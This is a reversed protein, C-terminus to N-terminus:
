EPLQSLYSRLDDACGKLEDSWLNIAEVQKAEDEPSLLEAVSVIKYALLVGRKLRILAFGNVPSQNTAPTNVPAGRRSRPSSARGRPKKVDTSAATQSQKKRAQAPRLPCDKGCRGRRGSVVMYKQAKIMKSCDCEAEVLVGKTAPDIGVVDKITLSNYKKGILDRAKTVAASEQSMSREEKPEPEEIKRTANLTAPKREVKRSVELPERALVVGDSKRVLERVRKGERIRWYVDAVLKSLDASAPESKGHM